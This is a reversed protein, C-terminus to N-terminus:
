GAALAVIGAAVIAAAWLRRRGDAERLIRSGIFAGFVISVERAPAVYSVPTFALATLVLIYSLSSLAAVGVALQRHLRWHRALEPGRRAAFPALLLVGTLTTGADYLVPAISLGAVGHRDWLTYAAIFAGAVLCSQVAAKLHAQDQRVLRVGTLMLIGALVALGGAVTVPGPREGLLVVAGATALLQGSGRALPYVLSFDGTRYSRQLYLAYGTKLVGSGAIWALASLPLVPHRWLVYAAVVPLYLVVNVLGVLYVFGVGGGARKSFLNWTAHLAAAALVLLLAPATV